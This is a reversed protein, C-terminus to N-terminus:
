RHQNFVWGGSLTRPRRTRNEASPVQLADKIELRRRDYHLRLAFDGTNREFSQRHGYRCSATRIGAWASVVFWEFCCSRLGRHSTDENTSGAIKVRGQVQWHTAGPQEFGIKQQTESAAHNSKGPHNKSIYLYRQPFSSREKM